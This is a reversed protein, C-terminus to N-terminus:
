SRGIEVLDGDKLGAPPALVIRDDPDLGSVVEVQDGELNSVLVTRSLAKDGEVVFITNSSGNHLDVGASFAARPVWVSLGAAARPLHINVASGPMLGSSGMVEAVYGFTNSTADAIPDIRRIRAKTILRDDNVPSLNIIQGPSLSSRETQPLKFKVQLASLKSVEYLKENRAVNTGLTIYRHTIIGSIPARVISKQLELKAGEVRTRAGETSLRTKEYEHSSQDLKYQAREIDSKSSLGDRALLQERELESRSLKVLSDYQQEEVKLRSVEIEAQRLQSRQEDDNFQALVEGKSVRTGEQGRMNVIRGDREALVVAIDDVSLAAPILLDGGPQGPSPQVDYVHVVVPTSPQATARTDPGRTQSGATCGALGAAFLLMAFM